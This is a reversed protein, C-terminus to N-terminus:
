RDDLADEPGYIDDDLFGNEALYRVFTLRAEDPSAEPYVFMHLEADWGVKGTGMVM